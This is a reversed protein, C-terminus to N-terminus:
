KKSLTAVFTAKQTLFQAKHLTFFLQGLRKKTEPM